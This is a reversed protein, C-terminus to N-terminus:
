AGFDEFAAGSPTITFTLGIYELTRTPKLFIEGYLENRDRTEPTNNTDDMKVRFDTLGRNQRINDLIPNVKQLFQDVTTQDNQEFILRIAINSILVKVQLLLRRVNIRDLASEAVQLTKQGFIATGVNAFSAIPNIRSNYLVDRADLSLKFKPPSSITGRTTGAPAYWPQNVKDTYAMARLVEGTPPIYLRKNRDTLQIWPFYTCAYNTNIDASDLLGAVDQAAVVDSAGGDGTSVEIDIDPSDIVYLSDTRKSELMDIADKVLLNQDSWNIGPTAFLNITVDEPNSFTNIATEWSQYDNSAVTNPLVGDYIGNLRYQDGYTRVTRNVDWGDFGGAPVLTFKRATKYYYPSTSSLVDLATRFQAAGVDFSYGNYTGTAGSDMHYGHTKILGGYGKFNFYNQNIGADGADDYGYNSIGLYINRLSTSTAIEDDTYSTKYFIKPMVGADGSSTSTASISFDNFLYGEFGAPFATLPIEDALEVMVYKDILPYKGDSTGIRLGIFNSSSDNLTCNSYTSLIDNTYYDRIEVTFNLLSPDISTISIKIEQNAADGDSISIFKFLRNITSGMLQSVVWPTEPTRFAAEGQAPRYDTYEDSTCDILTTNIAYGYGDADLKKLLDPYVEQVWIKASNDKSTFGIANSIYNSSDPNLSVTYTETTGSTGGGSTAGTNTATLTFEDFMDGIGINTSNSTITLERTDFTTTPALNINDTVYGRSRIVALVMKEYATYSTGSYLTRIVSTTGSNASSNFTTATFVEIQSEFSSGGTKTFGTSYTGTDGSATIAVDRYVGDTFTDTFGTTTSTAGTTAPDVGASLTIAWATGADYGSLGLVRTVWLQDAESLYTKAVYPVQYKPTGNSYLESNVDGFREKFQKFDRIFVPEFAPGKQTEGVLGATTIGVNRTIYSLDRERFKVGPSTFVFDAM